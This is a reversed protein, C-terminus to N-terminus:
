REGPFAPYVPLDPFPFREHLIEALRSAFQAVGPLDAGRAVLWELRLAVYQRATAPARGLPHM